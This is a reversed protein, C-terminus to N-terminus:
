WDEEVDLDEEDMSEDFIVKGTDLNTVTHIYDCGDGNTESVSQCAEELSPMIFGKDGLSKDNEDVYGYGCNDAIKVMAEADSDANFVSRIIGTDFGREDVERLVRYKM